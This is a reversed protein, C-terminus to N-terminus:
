SGNLFGMTGANGSLTLNMTQGKIEYTSVQGLQTVFQDGLSGAGCQALTSPGPKITLSSGSTTYTGSVNNCDAKANFSGDSNLTLTYSSPVAVNTQKGNQTVSTWQWPTGELKAGGGCSAMAIAVAVLLMGATMRRM